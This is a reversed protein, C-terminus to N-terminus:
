LLCHKSALGKERKQGDGWGDRGQRGDTQERDTESSLKEAITGTLQRDETVATESVVKVPPTSVSPCSQLPGLSCGACGAPGSVPGCSRGSAAPFAVRNVEIQFDEQM